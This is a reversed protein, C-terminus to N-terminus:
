LCDLVRSTIDNTKLFKRNPVCVITLAAYYGPLRGTNYVKGGHFRMHNLKKPFDYGARDVIQIQALLLLRKKNQNNFSQFETSSENYMGSMRQSPLTTCSGIVQKGFVYFRDNLTSLYKKIDTKAMSINVPPRLAVRIVPERREPTRTKYEDNLERLNFHEVVLEGKEHTANYCSCLIEGKDESEVLYEM